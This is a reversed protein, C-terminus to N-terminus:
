PARLVGTLMKARDSRRLWQFRARARARALSLLHLLRVNEPMEVQPMQVSDRSATGQANQDAAHTEASCDEGVPLEGRRCCCVQSSGANCCAAVGAGSRVDTLHVYISVYLIRCAFTGYRSDPAPVPKAATVVWRTAGTHDVTMVTRTTTPEYPKPIKSKPIKRAASEESKVARARKSSAPKSKGEKPAM